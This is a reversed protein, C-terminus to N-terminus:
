GGLHATDNFSRLLWRGDGFVVIRSISTNESHVFTLAPASTAQRCLEGIVGGHVVAAAVRGAGTQEVVKLFGVRVREAFAEMPEAGPIVDWRQEEFVRGFLPDGKAARVRMEGGEWEGLIVEALEPVVVPELGTAEVLPAATQATRQLNTIFLADPPDAALRAAVAQAQAEGEPALPPNGHGELMEFSEGEVAAQSAGHRVLLVETAHDPLAWARQPYTESM